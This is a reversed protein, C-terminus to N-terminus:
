IQVKNYRLSNNIKNKKLMKCNYLQDDNIDDEIIMLEIIVFLDAIEQELLERTPKNDYKPHSDAYGHRIVKGIVQIVEGCEEALLALRELEANSLKNFHPKNM